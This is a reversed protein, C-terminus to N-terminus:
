ARSWKPETAPKGPKLQLIGPALNGALYQQIHGWALAWDDWVIAVHHGLAALERARDKQEDSPANAGAKLEVYLGICPGAAVPLHTDPMGAKVGEGKMIAAEIRSRKGGNPIAYLARAQPHRACARVLACQMLSEPHRAM